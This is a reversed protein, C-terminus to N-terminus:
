CGYTIGVVPCHLLLTKHRTGRFAASGVGNDAQLRVKVSELLRRCVVERCGYLKGSWRPKFIVMWCRTFWWRGPDPNFQLHSNRVAAAVEFSRNWQFPAAGNLAFALFLSPTIFKMTAAAKNNMLHATQPLSNMINNECSSESM